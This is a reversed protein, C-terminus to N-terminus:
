GIRRRKFQEHESVTVRVGRLRNLAAALEITRPLVLNGQMERMQKWEKNGFNSINAEEIHELIIAISRTQGIEVLQSVASLDIQGKGIQIEDVDATKVRKGSSIIERISSLDFQRKMLKLPQVNPLEVSSPDNEAIKRAEKTVDSAVYNDMRIVSDCVDFFDGASGVVLITSIGHAALTKLRHLVPTIPENKVLLQMRRDRTMLNTASLDEDILLVEAGSEIAEMLSAAQSTSGSADQTRFCTTDLKQPLSDLFLSIDVDAVPRGDESRNYVTQPNVVTFERGDGPVHNYIGVKLASLLTSKGHFGGGVILTTGPRIGMGTLMKGSSLSITVEMEPPSKFKVVSEGEMPGDDAGSKRPLVAGNPVFGILQHTALLGRLEQQEEVSDVHKRLDENMNGVGSKTLSKRAADILAGLCTAAVNGTITRGRAPLAFYFQLILSEKDIFCCSRELVHQSPTYISFDGGKAGAWGNSQRKVMLGSERGVVSFRRALFDCFAVARIHNHYLQPSFETEKLPLSIYASSPPAYPDAQIRTFTLTCSPLPPLNWTKLLSKYAPYPRNELSCLHQSLADNDNTDTIHIDNSQFNQWRKSRGGGRGYGGGRGRGRGRGRGHGHGYGRGRSSCMRHPKNSELSAFHIRLPLATPLM